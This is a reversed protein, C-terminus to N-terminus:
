NSQQRKQAQGIYSDRRTREMEKRRKHQDKVSQLAKKAVEVERKKAAELSQEPTLPKRPKKPKTTAFEYFRM